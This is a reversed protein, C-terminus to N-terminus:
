RTIHATYLHMCVYIFPYMFVNRPAKKHICKYVLDLARFKRREELIRIGAMNLLHNYPTNKGYRLISRLIYNNTDGLKSVQGRSVGLLLPCCCVLHPLIYAKYLHCTADLPIFRNIRRLASAKACPKKVQESVHTVFNLKWDLTVGLILHIMLTWKM